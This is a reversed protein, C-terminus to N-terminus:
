SGRYRLGAALGQALRALASAVLLPSHSRGGAERSHFEIFGKIRKLYAPLSRLV